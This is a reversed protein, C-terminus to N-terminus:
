HIEITICCKLRSKNRHEKSAVTQHRHPSYKVQKQKYVCTRNKQCETSM